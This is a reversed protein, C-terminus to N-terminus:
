SVRPSEELVHRPATRSRVVREGRPKTETMLDREEACFRIFAVSEEFSRTIWATMFLARWSVVHGVRWVALGSVLLMLVFLLVGLDLVVDM